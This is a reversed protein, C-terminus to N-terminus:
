PIPDRPPLSSVDDEFDDLREIEQGTLGKVLVGRVARDEEALEKDNM